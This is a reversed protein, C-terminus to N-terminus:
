EKTMFEDTNLIASAAAAYAALEGPDLTKDVPSAGVTLLAKALEPHSQFRERELSVVRTLAAIERDSPPRALCLEFGFKLRDREGSAHTMIREGLKRSAEVFTTENLMALAQLPTNTRPRRVTCAERSPADFTGLVPNFRTRQWVAYVTRRYLDPSFSRKESPLYTQVSPGGVKEVLLGSVFLANDRLSEAGLRFRPGRSLWRNEPDRELSAPTAVSSQQYVGSEMITRCLAKVDWGSNMFELALWDLLEPHSPAESQVGLNESSKVLGVGFFREWIRNVFVRATLPNDKSIIWEALGLRNAPSGAPLTGLRAPIAAQVIEGPADYRGRHLVAATPLGPKEAMVMVRPLSSEFEDQLAQRRVMEDRLALTTPSVFRSYFERAAETESLSRQSRPIALAQARHLNALLEMEGDNLPRDYIRFDDVSAQLVGAVPSGFRLPVSNQFGPLSRATLFREHAAAPKGNLFLRPGQKSRNGDLILGVHTWERTPIRAETTLHVPVMTADFDFFDHNLELHLQSNTLSLEFGHPFLPQRGLKSLIVGNTASPNLWFALSFRPHDLINSVTIPSGPGHLELASGLIGQTYIPSSESSIQIVKSFEVRPIAPNTSERIGFRAELSHDFALHLVLQDPLQLPVSEALVHIKSSEWAQQETDIGAISQELQVRAAKVQDALERLRVSESPLPARLAPEFAPAFDGFVDWYVGREPVHNFFAFFQYFERQSIPDYKHDHCRACGLTLGLWTAGVTEVRDVVNEVKWEDEVSGFETNFRHNRHFGTALRSELTSPNLLDGAIQERTFQDFPKNQNFSEIVYDRWRWMTRNPDGQFGSTDAYRALDLWWSALHEGFRESALLQDLLSKWATSADSHWADRFKRVDEPRPSLGTLDLSARRILTEPSAPPAPTLGHLKLPEQVLADIPHPAPFGSGALTPAIPKSYAWHEEYRGGETVWRELAEIQKPSLQKGSDPPPMKLDPDLSQIRRVLESDSPRGPVLAARNSKGGAIAAATSDLRLGGKRAATDPGHCHFCNESLIPRIDRNFRLTDAHATATFGVACAVQIWSWSAHSVRLRWSLNVRAYHTPSAPPHM